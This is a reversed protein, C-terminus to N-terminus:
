NVMYNDILRVEGIKIAAFRRREHEEIYEVEINIAKLERIIDTCSVTHQHFIRAFESAQEREAANLRGNRSSYALGSAERVTPCTKIEIDMFFSAAMDRILQLQMYDKEGFYARQPKALNLLKMVVTLVGKFHGPRHLGEMQNSYSNEDIQYRYGDAYMVKEDPLLCYDVGTRVLMDLDDDLTRPYHTFDATQNFQTPNIFVSAITCNNEARSAIFLSEHGIHLNGMTPVFGISQKVPLTQRVRRWEDLNNYIHM